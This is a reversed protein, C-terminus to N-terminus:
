RICLFPFANSVYKKEAKAVKKAATQTKRAAKKVERRFGGSEATEVPVVNENESM